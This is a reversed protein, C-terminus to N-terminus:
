GTREGASVLVHEIVLDTNGSELSYFLVAKGADLRLMTKGQWSRPAGASLEAIECLMQRLRHQVDLPLNNLKEMAVDRVRINLRGGCQTWVTGPRSV